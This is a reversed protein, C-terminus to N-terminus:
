TIEFIIPRVNQLVARLRPRDSTEHGSKPSATRASISLIFNPEAQHMVRSPVLHPAKAGSTIDIKIVQDPQHRGPTQWMTVM